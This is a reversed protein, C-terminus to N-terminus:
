NHNQLSATRQAEKMIGNRQGKLYQLQREQYEHYIFGGVAVPTGAIALLFNGIYAGGVALAIGFSGVGIGKESSKRKAEIELEIKGLGQPDRERGM